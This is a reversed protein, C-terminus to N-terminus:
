FLMSKDWIILNGNIHGCALDGNILLSLVYIGSAVNKFSRIVKLDSDFVVVSGDNLGSM